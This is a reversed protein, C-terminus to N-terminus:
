FSLKFHQLLHLGPFMGLLSCSFRFLLPLFSVFMLCDLDLM